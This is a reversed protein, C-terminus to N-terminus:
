PEGGEREDDLHRWYDALFFGVLAVVVAGVILLLTTM